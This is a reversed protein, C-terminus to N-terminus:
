HFPSENVTTDEQEQLSIVVGQEFKTTDNAGILNTWYNLTSDDDRFLFVTSGTDLKEIEEIPDIGQYYATHNAWSVVMTDQRTKSVVTAVTTVGPREESNCVVYVIPTAVLVVFIIIALIGRTEQKQLYTKEMSASNSNTSKFSHNVFAM